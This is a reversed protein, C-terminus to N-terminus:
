AAVALDPRRDAWPRAAELQTGLALLTAEDAPRGILHIGAPLGDEGHVLPLSIAPLGTMNALATYPTFRGTRGWEHIEELSTDYEGIPVPRQALSPTLVADFQSAWAIFERSFAQLNTVAGLYDHANMGSAVQYIAWTLPDVDERSVTRGNVMGGFRAVLAISAGFAALFLPALEPAAPPFDLEEVEHGLEALLAAGDRAARECIPDLAADIAPELVLAIRRRGPERAALTAFPEPPPPAWTADGTEYGALVDLLLATEAVTRTLVGHAVLWHDGSDPGMSVRGRAAKLGVLGCCAAPIRISGGGDAGHALPVLGAAVAAGSGGSSGGPTRETDWPNRTPGYRRPETVPMIGLEPMNTRGVPIFGARRLRRVLYSDHKPVFDGFLRSGFTLRLGEAPTEDKLAIPVGAFPREDGPGIEDAAALAREADVLIFANLTPNLAEIRELSTEVLERATVEGSRVLTALETVPRFLLDADAPM